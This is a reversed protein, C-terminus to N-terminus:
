VMCAEAHTIQLMDTMCPVLIRPMLIIARLRQLKTQDQRPTNLCHLDGMNACQRNQVNGNVCVSRTPKTRFPIRSEPGAVVGDPILIYGELHLGQDRAQSQPCRIGLLGIGGACGPQWLQSSSGPLLRRRGTSGAQARAIGVAHNKPLDLRTTQRIEGTQGSRQTGLKAGDLVVVPM